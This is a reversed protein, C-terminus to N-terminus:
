AEFVGVVVVVHVTEFRWPSIHLSRPIYAGKIIRQAAISRAPITKISSLRVYIVPVEELVWFLNILLLHMVM